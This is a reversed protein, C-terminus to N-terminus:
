VYDAPVSPDGSLSEWFEREGDFGGCTAHERLRAAWDRFSTTKVGLDVPRGAVLQRYATDLDELLIRWSVGDVVLHHAALVVVPRSRWAAPWRPSRPTGSSTAPCSASVPM